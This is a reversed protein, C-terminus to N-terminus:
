KKNLCVSVKVDQKSGNRRKERSHGRSFGNVSDNFTRLTFNTKNGRSAAISDRDQFDYNQGDTRGDTQGDTM